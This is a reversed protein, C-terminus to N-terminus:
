ETMFILDFISLDINLLFITKKMACVTIKEKKSKFILYTYDTVQSAGVVFKHQYLMYEATCDFESTLSNLCITHYHDLLLLIISSKMRRAHFSHVARKLQITKKNQKKLCDNGIM